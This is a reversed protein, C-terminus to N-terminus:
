LNNVCNPFTQLSLLPLTQHKQYPFLLAKIQSRDSDLNDKATFAVIERTDKCVIWHKVLSWCECAPFPEGKIHSWFTHLDSQICRTLVDGCKASLHLCLSGIGERNPSWLGSSYVKLLTLREEELTDTLLCLILSKAVSLRQNRELVVRLEKLGIGGDALQLLQSIFLQHWTAGTIGATSGLAWDFM